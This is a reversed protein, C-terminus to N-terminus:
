KKKAAAKPKGYSTQVTEGLAQLMAKSQEAFKGEPELELYKNFAEATGEPPGM